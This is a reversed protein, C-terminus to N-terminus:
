RRLVEQTTFLPQTQGEGERLWKRSDTYLTEYTDMGVIGPPNGPRWIGFPAVGFACFPRTAQIKLLNGWLM